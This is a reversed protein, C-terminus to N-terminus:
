SRMQASVKCVVGMATGAAGASTGSCTQVVARVYEWHNDTAFGDSLLTDGALGVTGAVTALPNVGDNSVQIISSSSITAGVSSATHIFQFALKGLKPNVRFWDGTTPATCSLITQGGPSHLQQIAM